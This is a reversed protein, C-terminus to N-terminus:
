AMREKTWKVDEEIAHRTRALPHRVRKGWGIVAAIAAVLLVAGSVILGAVWGPFVTALAFIATVFLLNIALLGAIAAIGLGAVMQGESALDARVEAKALAIQAKVLREVDATIAKMLEVTSLSEPTPGAKLEAAERPMPLKAAAPIAKQQPNGKSEMVSGKKTELLEGQSASADDLLQKEGRVAREVQMLQRYLIQWDDYEADLQALEVALEDVRKLLIRSGAHADPASDFVKWLRRIEREVEQAPGAFTQLGQSHVVTEAILGHAWTVRQGKGRLLVGSTYFSVEIEPGTYHELREPVFGSFAAGGFWSLIRTPAKVWWSPETAQLGFGHRNMAEVVRGAVEHYAAVDTVLPVDASIQRRVMSILRIIPVSFFMVIFALALGLTLPFGRLVKV